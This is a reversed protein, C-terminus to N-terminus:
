NNPNPNDRNNNLLEESIDVYIVFCFTYHKARTETVFSRCRWSFFHSKIMLVNQTKRKLTWGSRIAIRKLQFADFNTYLSTFCVHNEFTVPRHLIKKHFM